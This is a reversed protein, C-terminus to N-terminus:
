QNRATPEWVNSKIGKLYKFFGMLLALNMNIFHTIFRLFVIHLNFKRLLYDTLPILYFLVQLCLLVLYFNSIYALKVNTALTILLFFPSLWRIVKHSIFSYAVPKWPPILMKKFHVLNQFNGASIRVKRRFEEMFENSIDEYVIADLNNLSYHKKELVKLNIYFDDVLFTQPVKEFLEKRIAYCGGFPGMMTGWCYGELYKIQVERSIYTQEQISIGKKNESSAHMNADVLGVLPHKFYKILEYSTGPSFMVNADTLIIFEGLAKEVLLNIIGPKGRREKFEFFRIIKYENELNKLIANTSDSSNDSGVLIEMKDKPYDDQIITLIKDSIVKEENYAAILISVYPLDEKTFKVDAPYISNKRKSVLSLSIPYLIYTHVVLGFSIWFLLEFIM